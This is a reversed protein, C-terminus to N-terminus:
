AVAPTAVTDKTEVTALSNRLREYPEGSVWLRHLLVALKRAVAVVARKKANKGGTKALELGWRRLDCDEGFPGLIYQASGVLLRRMYVDGANTIGLQRKITGSEDQRPRLGLYAGVQRSTDFRKPDDITLVFALATLSGVGNVQQVSKTEPYSERAIRGIERDYKKIESSISSITVVIPSLAEWLERPIYKSLKPFGSSSSSPLRGGISKVAGRVHNILLTRTRVMADRARILALSQQAEIGRHQIPGLLEADMRAIRALSEADVKDNKKDSKYILRLKRPNAVLVDHGHEKLLRSAWPSHTGAEIAIRMPGRKGFEARFGPDCTLVKGTEVIEGTENELVVFHSWRDGMDIGTTFGATGSTTRKM